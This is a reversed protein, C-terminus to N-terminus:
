GTAHKVSTMLKIDIHTDDASRLPWELQGGTSQERMRSIAAVYGRQLHSQTKPIAARWQPTNSSPNLVSPAPRVRHPYNVWRRDTTLAARRAPRSPAPHLPRSPPPSAALPHIPRSPPSSAALPHVPRWPPPCAALPHVPRSSPPCDALPISLGGPPPCAVISHVPRSSPPCAALPTSLGGPPHVPRATIPQHLAKRRFVETEEPAAILDVNIALRNAGVITAADTKRARRYM